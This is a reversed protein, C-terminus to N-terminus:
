IVEPSTINAEFFFRSRRPLSSFLQNKSNQVELEWVLQLDDKKYPAGVGNRQEHPSNLSHHDNEQEADLEPVNNVKSSTINWADNDGYVIIAQEDQHQEPRDQQQNMEPTLQFSTSNKVMNRRHRSLALVSFPKDRSGRGNREEEDDSEDSMLLQRSQELILRVEEELDVEDLGGSKPKWGAEEFLLKPGASSSSTSLGRGRPSTLPSPGEYPGATTTTALSTARPSTSPSLPPLGEHSVATTTAYERCQLGYNSRRRSKPLPMNDFNLGHSDMSGESTSITLMKSGLGMAIGYSSPERREPQEGSDGAKAEWDFSTRSVLVSRNPYVQASALRARPPSPLSTSRSIADSHKASTLPQERRRRPSVPSTSRTILDPHKSSTLSEERRISTMTKSLKDVELMVCSKMLVKLPDEKAPSSNTTAQNTQSSLPVTLFNAEVEEGKMVKFLGSKENVEVGSLDCPSLAAADVCDAVKTSGAKQQDVSNNSDLSVIPFEFEDEEETSSTSKPPSRSANANIDFFEDEPEYVYSQTSIYLEEKVTKVPLKVGTGDPGVRAANEPESIEAKCEDLSKKNAAVHTDQVQSPASGKTISRLEESAFGENVNSLVEGLRPAGVAAGESLMSDSQDRIDSQPKSAPTIKAKIKGEFKLDGTSPALSFDLCSLQSSDSDFSVRRTKDEQSQSEQQVSRVATTIRLTSVENKLKQMEKEKRELKRRLTELEELLKDPVIEGDQSHSSKSRSSDKADQVKQSAKKTGSSLNVKRKVVQLLKGGQRAIPSYSSGSSSANSTRSPTLLEESIEEWASSEVGDMATEWLKRISEQELQGINGSRGNKTQHRFSGSREGGNSGLRGGVVSSASKWM